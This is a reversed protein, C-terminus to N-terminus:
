RSTFLVALVGLFALCTAVVIVVAVVDVGRKEEAVRATALPPAPRLTVIRAPAASPTAAAVPRAAVPQV